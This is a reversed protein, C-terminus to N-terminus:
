ATEKSSFYLEAERLGEPSGIEYFREFVEHGALKGALSLQHYVDALDFPEIAAYHALVDASLIGLGYDIYEMEPRRRRKNYEIIKGESFVVNSQDWRDRNRLVTMLAKQGSRVFAQQTQNFDCLLFSDGYLVFFHEGLLALAQKLAGGTGLLTPGDFSHRVDLGLARGDGVAAEIQDGLYGSCIVVRTIGQRRLEDLQRYIFPRGAVDVLAKQIKETIPRL